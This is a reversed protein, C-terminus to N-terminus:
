SVPLLLVDKLNLIQIKTHQIFFITLIIQKDTIIERKPM